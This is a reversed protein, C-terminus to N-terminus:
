SFYFCYFYANLFVMLKQKWAQYTIKLHHSLESLLHSSDIFCCLHWSVYWLIVLCGIWKMIQENQSITDLFKNAAARSVWFPLWLWSTMRRGKTYMHGKVADEFPVWMSGASPSFGSSLWVREWWTPTRTRCNLHLAGQLKCSLDTVTGDKM